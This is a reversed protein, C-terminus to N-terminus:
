SQFPMFLCVKTTSCALWSTSSWTFKSHVAQDNLVLYQSCGEIYMRHLNDWRTSLGKCSSLFYFENRKSVFVRMYTYIPESNSEKMTHKVTDESETLESSQLSAMPWKRWSDPQTKVGVYTNIDFILLIIWNYLLQVYACVYTSWM